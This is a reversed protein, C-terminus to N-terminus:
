IFLANIKKVITSINIRQWCYARRLKSVTETDTRLYKALDEDTIQNLTVFCSIFKILPTYGGDTEILCNLTEEFHTGKIDDLFNAYRSEELKIKPSLPDFDSQSINGFYKLYIKNDYKKLMILLAILIPYWFVINGDKTENENMVLNLGNIFQLSARPTLKNKEIISAIIDKIEYECKFQMLSINYNHLDGIPLDIQYQIFKSLYGDLNLNNGFIDMIAQELINRDIAILVILNPIDLLHYITELVKIQYEPLCRDLEDILFITKRDKCYETLVERYKNLANNYENYETFIDPNSTLPTLDISHVNALTSFIVNPLKKIINIAADKLKNANTELKSIEYLIPIMPNDYFNNAWSDYKIINFNNDENNKEIIFELLTSKGAGYQGNLVVTLGHGNQEGFTSFMKFLQDLFEGRKLKDQQLKIYNQM